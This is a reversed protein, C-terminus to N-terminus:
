QAKQGKRDQRSRQAQDGFNSIFEEILLDVKDWLEKMQRWGKETLFLEVRRGSERKEIVGEAHLYEVLRHANTRPQDIAIALSSIDYPRGEAEGQAILGRAQGEGPMSRETWITKLITM